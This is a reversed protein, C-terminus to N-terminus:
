ARSMSSQNYFPQKYVHTEALVECILEPLTHKLCMTIHIDRKTDHNESRINPWQIGRAMVKHNRGINLRRVITKLSVVLHLMRTTFECPQPVVTLIFQLRVIQGLLINEHCTSVLRGHQQLIIPM